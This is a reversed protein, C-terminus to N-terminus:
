GGGKRELARDIRQRLAEIEGANRAVGEHLERSNTNAYEEHRAEWVECASIRQELASLSGDVRSRYIRVEESIQEVRPVIQPLARILDTHAGVLAAAMSTVGIGAIKVPLSDWLKPEGAM